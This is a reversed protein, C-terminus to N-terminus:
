ASPFLEMRKALMRSLLGLLEPPAAPRTQRVDPPDEFLIKALVAVVQEGFFPPRGTLCEYWLCGLSFIDAAPGVSREARVQEPAM